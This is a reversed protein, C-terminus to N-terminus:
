YGVPYAKRRDMAAMAMPLDLQDWLHWHVHSASICTCNPTAEIAGAASCAVNRIHRDSLKISPFSFQEQATAGTSIAKVDAIAGSAMIASTSSSQLAALRM